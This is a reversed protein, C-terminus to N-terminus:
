WFGVTEHLPQKLKCALHKIFHRVSSSASIKPSIFHFNTPNQSFLISPIFNFPNSSKILPNEKPFISYTKISPSSSFPTTVTDPSTQYNLQQFKSFDTTPYATITTQRQQRGAQRGSKVFLIQSHFPASSCGEKKERNKEPLVTVEKM